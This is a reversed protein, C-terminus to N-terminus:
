DMWAANHAESKAVSFDKNLRAFEGITLRRVTSGDRLAVTKEGISVITGTYDINRGGYTAVDGMAFSVDVLQPGNVHNHNVGYVVVSDGPSVLACLGIEPRGFAVLNEYRIVSGHRTVAPEEGNNTNAPAANSTILDNM